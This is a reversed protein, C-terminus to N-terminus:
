VKLHLTDQTHKDQQTLLGNSALSLINFSNQLQLVTVTTHMNHQYQDKEIDMHVNYYPDVSVFLTIHNFIKFILFM